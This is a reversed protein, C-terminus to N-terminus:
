GGKVEIKKVPKQAELKKPGNKFSAEIKDVLDILVLDAGIEFVARQRRGQQLGDVAWGRL